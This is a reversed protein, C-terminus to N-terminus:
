LLEDEAAFDLFEDMFISAFDSRSAANSKQLVKHIQMKVTGIKTNRLSAIDATAFGRLMFLGVSAEAPTLGWVAFKANLLQDFDQKLNYLSQEAKVTKQRLLRVYKGSVVLGGALASVAFVEFGLHILGESSYSTDTRLHERFDMLVDSLFFLLAVLKMGFVTIVAKQNMILPGGFALIFSCLETYILRYVRGKLRLRYREHM